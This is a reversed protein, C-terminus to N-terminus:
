NGEWCAWPRFSRGAELFVVYAAVLNANGNSLGLGLLRPHYDKRVQMLGVAQPEGDEDYDGLAAPNFQSECRAIEILASHYREPWVSGKLLDRFWRETGIEPNVWEISLTMVDEIMEVEPTVTPAPCVPLMSQYAARAEAPQATAGMLALAMVILIVTKL